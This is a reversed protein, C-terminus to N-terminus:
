KFCTLRQLCNREDGADNKVSQVFKETLPKSSESKPLCWGFFSHSATQKFQFEFNSMTSELKLLREQISEITEDLDISQVESLTNDMEGNYNKSNEVFRPSLTGSYEKEFSQSNLWGQLARHSNPRPNTQPMITNIDSTFVITTDVPLNLIEEMSMHDIISTTEWTGKLEFTRKVSSQIM